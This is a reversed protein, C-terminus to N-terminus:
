EGGFRTVVPILLESKAGTVKLTPNPLTEILEVQAGEWEDSLFATILWGSPGPINAQIDLNSENDKPNRLTTEILEPHSSLMLMDTEGSRGLEIRLSNETTKGLVHWFIAAQSNKPGDVSDVVIMLGEDARYVTRDQSWAHWDNVRIQAKSFFMDEEFLVVEAETPPDQAWPSGGILWFLTNGLGPQQITLANLNERPIRKDRFQNRGAPLWAFREETLVDSVLPQGKQFSIVAGTGKYLHWGSFRLNLLMYNDDIGWGDRLAIKDTSLPGTQNPLGSNGYLLCDGLDLPLSAAPPPLESGPQAYLYGQNAKLWEAGQRALTLYRGDKLMIAGFYAIGSLNTAKPHNYQLIVNPPSQALLWEFSNRMNAGDLKGSYLYQFYANNIWTPQYTIADDTNRFRMQWGRPNEALYTVNQPSLNPDSLGSSELIALLGAGNEQNEYPGIPWYNFAFAYLWDIWEITLARKNILRFWQKIIGQESLSFLEPYAEAVQWYYYARLAADHQGVKISNVPGTYRGEKADNLLSDHFLEAWADNSRGLALMGYEPAQANPNVEVLDLLSSYIDDAKYESETSPVNQFCQIPSSYSIHDYPQQNTISYFSKQYSPIMFFVLALTGMLISGLIHKSNIKVGTFPKIELNKSIFWGGWALSLFVVSLSLTKLALFFEEESFRTELAYLSIFVFPSIFSMVLVVFLGRLSRKTKNWYSNSVWLSTSFLAVFIIWSSWESQRVGFLIILIPFLSTILLSPWSWLEKGNDGSQPSLTVLMLLWFTFVPWLIALREWRLTDGNLLALFFASFTVPLAALLYYLVSKLFKHQRM